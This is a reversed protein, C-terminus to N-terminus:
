RSGRNHTAVVEAKMNQLAKGFTMRLLYLAFHHDATHRNAPIRPLTLSNLGAATVRFTAAPRANRAPTHFARVRSM